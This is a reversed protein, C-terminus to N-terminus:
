IEEWFSKLFNYSQLGKRVALSFSKFLSSVVSVEVYKKAWRLWIGFEWTLTESWFKDSIQRQQQQWLSKENEDEQQNCAMLLKKVFNNWGM